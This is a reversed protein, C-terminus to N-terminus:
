ISNAVCSLCMPRLYLIKKNVTHSIAQAVLVYQQGYAGSVTWKVLSKPFSSKSIRAQKNELM